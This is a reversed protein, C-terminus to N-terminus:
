LTIALSLWRQNLSKYLERVEVQSDVIRTIKPTSGFYSTYCYVLFYLTCIRKFYMNCYRGIIKWYLMSDREMMLTTFLSLKFRRSNIFRYIGESEGNLKQTINYNTKRYNTSQTTTAHWDCRVYLEIAFFFTSGGYKTAVLFSFSTFCTFPLGTNKM